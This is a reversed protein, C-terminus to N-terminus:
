HVSRSMSLPSRVLGGGIRSFSLRIPQSSSISGLETLARYGPGTPNQSVNRIYYCSFCKDAPDGIAHVISSVGYLGLCFVILEKFMMEFPRSMGAKVIEFTSKKVKDYKAIFVEGTGAADDEKQLLAAKRRLLTPAYTEPVFLLSLALM